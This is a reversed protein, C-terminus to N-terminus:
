STASRIAAADGAPELAERYNWPMWDAPKAAARRAQRLLAVLYDFPDADCLEATHILSMFLDGVRAGNETKYFLANKRHLIARKLARECITNDLPAGAVQLFRTLKEWHKQMYRIAEGLASNPEVRHGAIQEACWTEITAMLPGSREQHFALREEASFGRRRALEDNHYVEGLQELIHRCEEPFSGRVDVFKRRAHAMCNALITAFEESTNRALADCMQIPPSLDRMRQALLRELNEGAHRWGTFFLAVRQGGATSVIGSTYTGTREGAREEPDAPLPRELKLIKMTTDDNYLVEGQAAQHILEAYAPEIGAAGDRVLEWQTAAPLPIGLSKELKQLRYFPVGSGYKLLAIMAVATEDYKRTGAAEPSAATFVQGCLNCRLRELEYLRAQLPAMGTIRLLRAPDPLRYVKGRGCAPCPDGHALSEHSVPVKEAGTFSAAGHRGHGPRKSEPEAPRDPGAQGVSGAQEPELMRSMKETSPGFLMRRLREISVGKAELARTLYALTEVASRLKEHDQPALIGRTRELIAELEKLDVERTRM